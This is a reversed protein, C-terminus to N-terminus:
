DSMEARANRRVYAEVIAALLALAAPVIMPYFIAYLALAGLVAGAAYAVWATTLLVVEHHQRPAGAGPVAAGLRFLDGTIFVTNVSVGGIRRVAANQMGLAAASLAAGWPSAILGSVGLMIATLALPALVSIRCDLAARTLIVAVLFVAIVALHYLAEAVHGEVIDIGLLVTNGSMAGVFTGFRLYAIADAAGGTLCLLATRGLDRFANMPPNYFVFGYHFIISRQRETRKV